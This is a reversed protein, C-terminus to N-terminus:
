FIIDLLKETEFNINIVDLYSQNLLLEKPENKDKICQEKNLYNKTILSFDEFNIPKDLNELSIFKKYNIFRQILNYIDNIRSKDTFKNLDFNSFDLITHLLSTINNIIIFNRYQNYFEIIKNKIIIEKKYNYYNKM